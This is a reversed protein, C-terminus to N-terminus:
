TATIFLLTDGNICQQAVARVTIQVYSIDVNLMAFKKILFWCFDAYIITYRLHTM